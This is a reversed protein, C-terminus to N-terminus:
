INKLDEVVRMVVAEFIKKEEPPFTKLVYESGSEERMGSRGDVGVRVHWFQKTGLQEYLSSLGNHQKPGHGFEIKFQGLEIDLDDHIVYWDNLDTQPYKKKLSRIISGSENMFTQPKIVMIKEQNKDQFFAPAQWYRQGSLKQWQTESGVLEDAVLFGSNHRTLQYKGGPNGLGIVIKM